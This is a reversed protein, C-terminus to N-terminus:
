RVGAQYIAGFIATTYKITGHKDVADHHPEIINQNNWCVSAPIAM